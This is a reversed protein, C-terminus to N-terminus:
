GPAPETRGRRCTGVEVVLPEAVSPRCATGRGSCRDAPGPSRAEPLRPERRGSLPQSQRPPEARPKRRAARADRRRCGGSPGARWALVRGHALQRARPPRGAPRHQARRRVRPLRRRTRRAELLESRRRAFGVEIVPDNRGHAIFVKTDTRPGACSPSGGEVTPIFGSFALIGAPHRASPRRARARLEDGDGDLLRRARHARARDRDAGVARRAARRPRRVGRPVDGPRPYGVRPCRRVLPLGALRPAAAAGAAHRRAAAARPDLVDGLPLLDHEDTGRGHCLVLLGDPDGAAPRERYHLASMLRPTPPM